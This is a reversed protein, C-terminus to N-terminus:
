RIRAPRKRRSVEAMLEAIVSAPANDADILVALKGDVPLVMSAGSLQISAGAYRMPPSAFIRLNDRAEPRM